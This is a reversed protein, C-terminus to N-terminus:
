MDRRAATDYPPIQAKGSLPDDDSEPAIQGSSVIGPKNGNGSAFDREMGHVINFHIDAKGNRSSYEVMSGASNQFDVPTLSVRDKGVIGRDREM